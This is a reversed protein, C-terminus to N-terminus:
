IVPYDHREPNFVAFTKNRHRNKVDGVLINKFYHILEDQIIAMPTRINCADTQKCDCGNVTHQCNVIEIPGDVAEIIALIDIQNIDQLLTYGGKVGHASALLGKKALNQLVKGLIEPPIKYYDALLRTTVMEEQRLNALHLLVILAYEFKKSFRIM